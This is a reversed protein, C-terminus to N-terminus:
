KRSSRDMVGLGGLGLALLLVTGPEPVVGVVTFAGGYITVNDAVSGTGFLGGGPQLYGGGTYTGVATATITVTGVLSPIGDGTKNEVFGYLATVPNPPALAAVDPIVLGNTGMKVKSGGAPTYHWDWNTVLNKTNPFPSNETEAVGIDGSLTWLVTTYLQAANLEITVSFQITDGVFILENGTTSGAFDNTISSASSVLPLAMALTFACLVLAKKTASKVEIDKGQM